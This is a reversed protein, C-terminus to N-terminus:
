PAAWLETGPNFNVWAGWFAVYSGLVKPLREGALPGSLGEGTVSWATGTEADEFGNSTAMLTVPQGNLEPSLALAARKAADWLVAVPSGDVVLDVVGFGGLLELAGFPLAAGGAAGPIGLVREKQPRRRDANPVPFGLFDENTLEEYTGYPYGSRTYNRGSPAGVVLTEPHLQKWGGWTMEYEPVFTLPTGSRTGCRAEGIMQPWFSVDTNRDYLILNAQYLLGSVGFEAGGVSARDFILASGTLPCYSVAFNQTDGDLNAIEHHWLLNHPVAVPKGDLFLGIVRDEDQLFAVQESQPSVLAPNNLAPIADRPVGGSTFFRLDLDCQLEAAPNQAGPQIPDTCGALVTAFLALAVPLSGERRM